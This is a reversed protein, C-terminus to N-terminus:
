SITVRKRAWKCFGDGDKLDIGLLSCFHPMTDDHPTANKNFGECDRCRVLTEYRKNWADRAEPISGYWNNDTSGNNFMESLEAQCNKTSCGIRYFDYYVGIHAKGGCHACPLLTTEDTM